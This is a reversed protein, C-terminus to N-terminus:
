VIVMTLPANSHPDHARLLSTATYSSAHLSSPGADASDRTTLAIWPLPMPSTTVCVPDETM